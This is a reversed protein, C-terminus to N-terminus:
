RRLGRGGQRRRRSACRRRATAVVAECSDVLRGVVCAEVDTAGRVLSSHWRVGRVRATRWSSGMAQGDHGQLAGAEVLRRWRLDVRWGRGVVRAEM